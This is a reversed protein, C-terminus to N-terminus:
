KLQCRLVAGRTSMAGRWRQKGHQRQNLLQPRYRYEAVGEENWTVPQTIPGLYKATFNLAANLSVQSQESTSQAPRRAACASALVAVAVFAAALRLGPRVTM